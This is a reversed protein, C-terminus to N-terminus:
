AGGVVSGARLRPDIWRQLLDVGFNVVLVVATIALILTQVVPLDRGLVSSLLLSGLGPLAFVAEVVVTATQNQPHGSFYAGVLEGYWPWDYETDSAAHIGAYGGGVVVFTLARRRLEPDDALRRAEFIRRERDNLVDLAHFLWRAKGNGWGPGVSGAGAIFAVKGTFDLM